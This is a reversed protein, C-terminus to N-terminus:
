NIVIIMILLIKDYININDLVYLYCDIIFDEEVLNLLIENNISYIIQKSM